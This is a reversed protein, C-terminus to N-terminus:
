GGAIPQLISIEDGDNVIDKLNEVQVIDENRVCLIKRESICNKTLQISMKQNLTRLVNFVTTNNQIPIRINKDLVKKSFVGSISVKISAM